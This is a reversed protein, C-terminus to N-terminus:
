MFVKVFRLVNNWFVYVFYKFYGFIDIVVGGLKMSYVVFYVDVYM